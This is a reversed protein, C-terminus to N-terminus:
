VWDLKAPHYRKASKIDLNSETVPYIQQVLAGPYSSQLNEALQDKSPMRGRLELRYLNGEWLIDAVYSEEVQQEPQSNMYLNGNFDGSINVSESLDHDYEDALGVGSVGYRQGPKYQVSKRLPDIGMKRLEANAMDRKVDFPLSKLTNSYGRAMRAPLGSSTAAPKPTPKNLAGSIRDMFGKFSIPIGSTVQQGSRYRTRASAGQASPKEPKPTAAPTSTTAPTSSRQARRMQAQFNKYARRDSTTKSFYVTNGQADKYQQRHASTTGTPKFGFKAADQNAQKDTPKAEHLEM